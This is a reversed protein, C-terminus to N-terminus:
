PGGRPAGPRCGSGARESMDVVYDCARMAGAPAAVTGDQGVHPECEFCITISRKRAPCVLHETIRRCADEPYNVALFKEAEEVPAAGRLCWQNVARRKRSGLVAGGAMNFWPVPATKRGLVLKEFNYDDPPEYWARWRVM